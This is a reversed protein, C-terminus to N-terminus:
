KVTSGARCTPMPGRSAQQKLYSIVALHSCQRQQPQPLLADGKCGQQEPQLPQKTCKLHASSAAHVAKDCVKKIDQHSLCGQRCNGQMMRVLYEVLGLHGSGAAASTAASFRDPTVCVRFDPHGGVLLMQVLDQRGIQATTRLAQHDYDRDQAGSEVLIQCAGFPSHSRMAYLLDSLEPEMGLKILIYRLADWQQAKVAKAV